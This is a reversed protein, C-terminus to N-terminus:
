LKNLFTNWGSSLHNKEMDGPKECVICGDDTSYLVKKIKYKVMTELCHNCPRSNKLEGLKNFRVVV